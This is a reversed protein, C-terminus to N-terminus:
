WPGPYGERRARLDHSSRVDQSKTVPFHLISIVPNPEREELLRRGFRTELCCYTSAVDSRWLRM